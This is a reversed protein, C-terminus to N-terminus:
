KELKISIFVNEYLNQAIHTSKRRMKNTKLKNENNEACFHCRIACNQQTKAASEVCNTTFNCATTINWRRKFGHISKSLGCTFALFKFFPFTQPFIFFIAIFFPFFHFFHAFFHFIQQCLRLSQRLRIGGDGDENM